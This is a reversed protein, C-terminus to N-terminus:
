NSPAMKIDGDLWKSQVLWKLKAQYHLQHWIVQLIGVSKMFPQHQYVLQPLNVTPPIDKPQM